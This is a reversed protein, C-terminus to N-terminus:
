YHMCITKGLGQRRGARDFYSGPIVEWYVVQLWITSEPDAEPNGVEPVENTKAVLISVM